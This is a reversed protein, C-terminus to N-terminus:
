LCIHCSAALGLSCARGKCAGLEVDLFNGLVRKMASAEFAFIRVQAQTAVFVGFAILIIWWMAIEELVISDIKRTIQRFACIIIQVGASTFSSLATRELAWGSEDLLVIGPMNITLVKVTFGCFILDTACLFTKAVCPLTGFVVNVTCTSGVDRAGVRSTGGNIIFCTAM